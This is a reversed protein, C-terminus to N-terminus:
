GLNAPNKFLDRVALIKSRLTEIKMSNFLAPHLPKPIGDLSTWCWGKHENNLKPIFEEDVLCIYTHYEFRDDISSFLDLPIIKKIEFNNGIEEEIERLLTQIMTESAEAKGGVLGWTNTYTDDSRLLFLYRDSNTAYFLAGAAKIKQKM